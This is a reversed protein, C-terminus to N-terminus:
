THVLPASIFHNPAPVVEVEDVPPLFLSLWSRSDFLELPRGQNDKGMEGVQRCILELNSM